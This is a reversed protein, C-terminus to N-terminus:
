DADSVEEFNKGTLEPMNDDDDGEPAASEPGSGGRMMSGMMAMEEDTVGAKAFAEQIQTQKASNQLDDLTLKEREMVRKIKEVTAGFTSSMSSNLGGTRAGEGKMDPALMNVNKQTTNGHLVFANAPLLGRVKPNSFQVVSGDNMIINAEEVQGIEQLGAKKTIETVKKDDNHASKPIPKSKRRMSGKGGIQAGEGMKERLKRRAELVEAPVEEKTSM